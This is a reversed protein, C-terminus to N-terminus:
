KKYITLWSKLESFTDEWTTAVYGDKIKQEMQTRINKDALRVIEELISGIDYPSVYTVLEKGVEPMSSTNSSICCKGHSLSEAIPLGWGEYFSPFVTFTCNRYLWELEEDSVGHMITVQSKIDTDKTLLAYVEEAMWGKKGVIILKPM